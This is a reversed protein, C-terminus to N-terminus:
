DNLIEDTEAHFIQEIRGMLQESTFPKPVFAVDEEPVGGRLVVDNKYGSIYLVPLKPHIALLREYLEPGNMEPMVVDTILLDISGEHSTAIDLAKSPTSALLVTYGHTELIIRAMDLIMENDDIFLITKGPQVHQRLEVIPKAATGGASINEPFYM